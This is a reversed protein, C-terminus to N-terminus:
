GRTWNMNVPAGGVQKKNYQDKWRSEVTNFWNQIVSPHVHRLDQGEAVPIGKLKSTYTGDSYIPAPNPAGANPVPLSPTQTAQARPMVQAMISGISDKVAAQIAALVYPDLTPAPTSVEAQPAPQKSEIKSEDKSM